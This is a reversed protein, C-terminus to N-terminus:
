NRNFGKMITKTGSIKEKLIKTCGLEKLQGLQMNFSQNETSLRAYGLLM